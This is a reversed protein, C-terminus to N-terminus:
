AINWLGTPDSPLILASQSAFESGADIVIFLFKSILLDVFRLVVLVM